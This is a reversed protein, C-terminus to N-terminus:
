VHQAHRCVAQWQVCDLYGRTVCALSLLWLLSLRASVTVLDACSPLCEPNQPPAPYLTAPFCDCRVAAHLIDVESDAVDPLGALFNNLHAAACCGKRHADVVRGPLLGWAAVTSWASQGLNHLRSESSSSGVKM